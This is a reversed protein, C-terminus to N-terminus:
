SKGSKKEILGAALESLLEALAAREVKSARLEDLDAKVDKAAAQMRQAQEARLSKLEDHVAKQLDGLSKAQAELAQAQKGLQKNLEAIQRALEKEAQAGEGAQEKLRKALAELGKTWSGELAAARNLWEARADAVDRALREELTALRRESKRTHEGFLLDRVKDLNSASTDGDSNTM